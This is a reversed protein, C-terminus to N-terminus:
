VVGATSPCVSLRVSALLPPYHFSLPLTANHTTSCTPGRSLHPSSISFSVPDATQWNREEKYHEIYTMHEQFNLISIMFFIFLFYTLNRFSWDNTSLVLFLLKFVIKLRKAFYKTCIQWSSFTEMRKETLDKWNTYKTTNSSHHLHKLKISSM